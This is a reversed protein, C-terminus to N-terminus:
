NGLVAYRPGSTLVNCHTVQPNSLSYLTLSFLLGGGVFFSNAINESIAFRNLYFNEQNNDTM